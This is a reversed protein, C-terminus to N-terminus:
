TVRVRKGSRNGEILKLAAVAHERVKKREDGGIEELKNKERGEKDAGEV